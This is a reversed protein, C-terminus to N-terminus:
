SESIELCTKVEGNRAILYLNIPPPHFNLILDVDCCHTSCTFPDPYKRFGSYTKCQSLCYYGGTLLYWPAVCLRDLKNCFEKRKECGLICASVTSRSQVYTLWLKSTAWWFLVSNFRVLLMVPIQLEASVLVNSIHWIYHWSLQVLLRQQQM